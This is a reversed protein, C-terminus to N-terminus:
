SCLADVVKADGSSSSYMEVVLGVWLVTVNDGNGVVVVLKGDGVLVSVDTEVVVFGVPLGGM